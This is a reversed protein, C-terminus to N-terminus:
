FTLKAKNKNQPDIYLTIVNDDEIEVPIELHNLEKKMTLAEAFITFGNAIAPEYMRWIKDASEKFKAKKANEDTIPLESEAGDFCLRWLQKLM